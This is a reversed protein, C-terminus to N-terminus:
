NKTLKLGQQEDIEAPVLSGKHGQKSSNDRGVLFRGGGIPVIGVPCNFEFREVKQFEEDAKLEVKATKALVLADLKV